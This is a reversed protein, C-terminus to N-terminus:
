MAEHKSKLFVFSQNIEREKDQLGAFGRRNGLLYSSGFITEEKNIDQIVFTWKGGEVGKITTLWGDSSM